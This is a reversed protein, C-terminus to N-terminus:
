SGKRGLRRRRRALYVALFVGAVVILVITSTDMFTRVHQVATHRRTRGAALRVAYDFARNRRGLNAFLTPAPRSGNGPLERRSRNPM